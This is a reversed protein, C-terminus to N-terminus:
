NFEKIKGCCNAFLHGLYEKLEIIENKFGTGDLYSLEDDTFM